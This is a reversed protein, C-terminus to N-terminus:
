LTTEKVTRFVGTPQDLPLFAAIAMVAGGVIVLGLGLPNSPGRNM